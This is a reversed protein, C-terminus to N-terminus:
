FRALIAPAWRNEATREVGDRETGHHGDAAGDRNAPASGLSAPLPLDGASTHLIVGRSPASGPLWQAEGTNVLTPTVQCIAGSPVALTAGNEVTVDLSPCVVHIGAFEANAFKLPGSGEYPVNGVQILPMTSTDTGTGQDALIVSRGAQRTQVYRDQNNLFLGYSGRADTDRDVILTAPPDSTLDPPAAAFSANWQALTKACARPTGDPDIIGFDTGDLPGSGGPWWWVSAGNSGDDAVQRMMRTASPQRHRGHLRIAAMRASIRASNRGSWRNAAPGTAATPPSSAMRGPQRALACRRIDNRRSSTWTPPARESTTVPTTMTRRVDDHDLQSLDAAYGSRQPPDPARDAGLNRGLYDDLFRRYAAVMIRWPGDNQMQDDLPNTLQGSGDLPATFGWIQQAKALSGYQDNVWARWDPDLVLRGTNYVIREM